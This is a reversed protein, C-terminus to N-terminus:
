SNLLAEAVVGLNLANAGKVLVTDGPKILGRVMELAEQADGARAVSVESSVCRAAEGLADAFKGGVTVVQLVGAKAVQRGIRDHWAAAEDGLEAMEGLVAVMRRGGAVDQLAELAAEMSEPSANFSDNILTLRGHRHVDMRGGSTLQARQLATAIRGFPVGAAFATAAAALANTVNHRGHVALQVRVVKPGYRLSFSPRGEEDIKVGRARVDCDMGTGFTIVQADTDARMAAVLPDDGNLVAVGHAPLARVIEAKADAIAERSGFEGIHASGVGLVTAIRPPAIKCLEDIHGKGRAGMELVLYRSDQRVQSVTTPFGIENNYSKPTAVTPGDEALVQRLMDKTSTKGASGTIAIVTGTYRHAVARAVDAMATLVNGVLVAPIGVPRTALAAAAGGEVAQQAYDHGDAHKGPLCCFLGGSSVTKSNFSLDGTVLSAPDAGDALTGGTAEAIEALTMPIM